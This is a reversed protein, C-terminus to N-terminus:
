LNDADVVLNDDANAILDYEAVSVNSLHAVFTNALTSEESTLMTDEQLFSSINNLLSPRANLELVLERRKKKIIIPEHSYPCNTRLCGDTLSLVHRDCPFKSKDITKLSSFSKSAKAIAKISDSSNPKLKSFMSNQSANSVFLSESEENTHKEESHEVDHDLENISDHININNMPTSNYLRNNRTQPQSTNHTPQHTILKQSAHQALKMLSAHPDFTTKSNMRNTLIERVAFFITDHAKALDTMSVLYLKFHTTNKILNQKILPQLVSDLKFYTMVLSFMSHFGLDKNNDFRNTSYFMRRVYEAHMLRHSIETFCSELKDVFTTHHIIFSNENFRFKTALDLQGIEYVLVQMAYDHMSHTTGKDTSPLLSFVIVPLAKDLSLTQYHALKPSYDRSIYNGTLLAQMNPYKSTAYLKTLNNVVNLQFDETLCEFLITSHDTKHRDKLMHAQIVQVINLVSKYDVITHPFPKASTYPFQHKRLNVVNQEPDLENDISWVNHNDVGQVNLSIAHHTYGRELPWNKDLFVNPYPLRPNDPDHFPVDSDRPRPTGNYTDIYAPKPTRPQDYYGSPSFITQRIPASASSSPHTPHSLPVSSTASSNYARATSTTANTYGFMNNLPNQIWNNYFSNNVGYMDNVDVPDNSVPTTQSLRSTSPFQSSATQQNFSERPSQLPNQTSMSPMDGLNNTSPSATPIPSPRSSSSNSPSAPNSTADRFSSMAPDPSNDGSSQQMSTTLNHLSLEQQRFLNERALDYQQQLQLQQEANQKLMSSMQLRDAYSQDTRLISSHQSVPQQNSNRFQQAAQLQRSLDVSSSAHAGYNRLNSSRSATRPTTTQSASPVPRSSNHTLANAASDDTNAMMVVHPRDSHHAGNSENYLHSGKTIMMPNIVTVYDIESSMVDNHIETFDVSTDIPRVYTPQKYPVVSKFVTTPTKTTSTKSARPLATAAPMASKIVAASLAASASPKIVAASLAASASQAYSSSHRATPPPATAAPKMVAASNVASTGKVDPARQGHDQADPSTPRPISSPKTTKPKGKIKTGADTWASTAPAAARAEEPKPKVKPAAETRAESVQAPEAPAGPEHQQAVLEPTSTPVPPISLSPAPVPSNTPSGEGDDEAIAAFRNATSKLKPPM